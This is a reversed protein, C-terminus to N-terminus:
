VARHGASLGYIRSLLRVFVIGNDGGLIDPFGSQLVIYTQLRRFIWAPCEVSLVRYGTAPLKARPNRLIHLFHGPDLRNRDSNRLLARVHRVPLRSKIAPEHVICLGAHPFLMIEYAGLNIRQGSLFIRTYLKKRVM